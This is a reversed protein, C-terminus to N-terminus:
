SSKERNQKTSYAMLTQGVMETVDQIYLIKYYEMLFIEVNKDFFDRCLMTM